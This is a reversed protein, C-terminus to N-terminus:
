SASQASSAWRRWAHYAAGLAGVTDPDEPIIPSVGTLKEVLRVMCPNRAVGGAFLLPPTLGVRGLMSATRQCVSAHLAWAIDEPRHGQAMLSTAETEAFVTCMANIRVGERGGLAFVGFEEVPIQFVTAMHELFKGTGAACRDNMEFKLVQGQADLRIAKTDQGGIDLITRARPASVAAGLAYATIETITAVESGVVQGVLERGYGTATVMPATRGALLAALQAVPHFTTPLRASDVVAAQADLAVLEMSRSGVDIGLAVIEAV